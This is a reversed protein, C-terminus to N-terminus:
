LVLGAIKKPPPLSYPGIVQLNHYTLCHTIYLMVIVHISYNGAAVHLSPDLDTALCTLHLIIKTGAQNRWFQTIALFVIEFVPVPIQSLGVNIWEHVSPNIDIVITWAGTQKSQTIHIM